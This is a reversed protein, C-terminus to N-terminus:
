AELLAKVEPSEITYYKRTVEQGAIMTNLLNRAKEKDGGSQASAVRAFSKVFAYAVEKPDAQTTQSVPTQPKPAPESSEGKSQKYSRLCEDRTQYIELFKIATMEKGAKSKQGNKVLEIKAYKGNIKSVDPVGIDRLSPLTISPWDGFKAVMTRKIDWALDSEALPVIALSIATHKRVQNGNADLTREDYPMIGYGPVMMGPFVDIYIEGFNYYTPEPPNNAEDWPNATVIMESM